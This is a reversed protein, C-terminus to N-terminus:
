NSAGFSKALSAIGGLNKMDFGQLLGKAQELLPSMSKMANALEMQQQMLKQTDSTLQKIGNGELIKSLDGYADEITSAYDVRNKKRNMFQEDVPASNPSPNTQQMTSKVQEVKESIDSKLDSATTTPLLPTTSPTTTPTTATTTTTATTSPTTSATTSPTTAQEKEKIDTEAQTTLGEHVRKGAMLVSTLVLPVAIVVIMNKNFCSTLYGILVFIVISTLNGTILYGFLTIIALFFVFYLVYKNELVKEFTREFTKKSFKM